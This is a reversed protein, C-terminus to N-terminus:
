YADIYIIGANPNNANNTSPGWVAKVPWRDNNGDIVVVGVDGQTDIFYQLSKIIESAKIANEQENM